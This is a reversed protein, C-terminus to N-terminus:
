KSLSTIINLLKDIQADKEKLQADKEAIRINKEEIMLNKEKLQTIFLEHCTEQPHITTAIECSSNHPIIQNKNLSKKLMAREEMGNKDDLFFYIDKGLKDSLNLLFSVKIDSAALKNQLNQESIELLEAITKLPINLEEIKKRLKKGNM